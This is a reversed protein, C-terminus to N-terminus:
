DEIGHDRKYKTLIIKYSKDFGYTLFLQQVWIQDMEFIAERVMMREIRKERLRRM